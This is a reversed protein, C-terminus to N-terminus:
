ASSPMRSQRKDRPSPSTYLLCTGSGPTAQTGSGPTAQTGSGPAPQTGSGPAPQTGSGPAAQTGSGSDTPKNGSGSDLPESSFPDEVQDAVTPSTSFTGAQVQLKPKAPVVPSSVARFKPKSDAMLALAARTGAPNSSNAIAGHGFLEAAAQDGSNLAQETLNSLQLSKQARVSAFERLGASGVTPLRLGKDDRAERIMAPLFAFDDSSAEGAVQLVMSQSKSHVDGTLNFTLNTADSVTGMVVSDRDSRLPPFSIPYMEIVAADREVNTPWFVSGHVTQALAAATEVVINESDSAVRVNGGTHNALAAMIAVNREPGIAFSSVSVQNKVLQNVVTKFVPTEMLNSSSIGDGIYIVNKNRGSDNAFQNSAQLLMAEIDTTGLPIRDGLAEMATDVDAATVSVFDETLAVPDIDVAMIKVRDESSLNRLLQKVTAISDQKFVGNQSASTDVYIVVDSAQSGESVQAKVSLAFHTKGANDFTTLRTQPQAVVVAQFAILAVFTLIGRLAVETTCKSMVSELGFINRLYAREPDVM